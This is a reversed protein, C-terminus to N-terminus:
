DLARRRRDGSSSDTYRIGVVRGVVWHTPSHLGVTWVGAAFILALGSILEVDPAQGPDANANRVALAVAVAGVAILGLLVTNGIWM